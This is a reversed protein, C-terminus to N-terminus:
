SARRQATSADPAAADTVGVRTRRTTLLARTRREDASLRARRPPTTSWVERLEGSGFASLVKPHIYSTRCVTPTNGLDQSVACVVEKVVSQQDREKEPPELPGLAAAASVTAVWTRFDKATVDADAAERLYDNVDHSHVVTPAGDDDLYQFLRQGPIEQCERLVRAVRLDQAHVKHQLGSKGTFVFTIETGSVHAHQNRFTTLGYAGNERAYEDNGVRILTTQLLQVVTALVKERPVGKRALDADVRRRVAPLTSAFLPLRDFKVRDRFTTWDAHYRYQLRGRADRGVAQLHSNALDSIRVDTWAPPIVIARIRERTADDDVRSGDAHHYSFGRGRRVRRITLDEASQHRLSPVAIPSM